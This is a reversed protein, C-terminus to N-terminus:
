LLMVRLKAYQPNILKNHLRQAGCTQPLMLFLLVATKILWYFPFVANITDAYSDTLTLFGFQIWYCLWNMVKSKSQNHIAEISAAAPYAFGILNTLIGAEDGVILYLAVVGIVVCTIYERKIGIKEEADRLEKEVSDSNYQYLLKHLETGFDNLKETMPKHDNFGINSFTTEDTDSISM